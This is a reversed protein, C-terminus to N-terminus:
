NFCDSQRNRAAPFDRSFAFDTDQFNIEETSKRAFTGNEFFDGNSRIRLFDRKPITSEPLEEFLFPRIYFDLRENKHFKALSFRLLTHSVFFSPHKM